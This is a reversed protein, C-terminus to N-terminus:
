NLFENTYLSKADTKPDLDNYKKMLAVMDEWDSAVNLGIKKDKNGASFLVGLTVNLVEKAQAKGQDENMTGGVIDGMANIAADPNKLTEAYAKM